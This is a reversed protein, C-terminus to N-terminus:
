TISEGQAPRREARSEIWQYLTPLLVLTLFTSSVIGGIVVTALPRQVEAGAGTAIAMPVFGLSAVLATMLKPRLRTLSGEWVAESLPKGGARLQNIFSILMIGNLVAIGSLAIFGVAASISFPMGRLALAFVGGTVALPVCLFILTAQRLSQFSLFIFAFILALSAPVVILLRTKATQLNEFQGGFEVYYGPPLQLESSLTSRAQRVFSDVDRGRLNILIAARRRGSERQVISVREVFDVNALTEIPLVGGDDTAVPLRKLAPLSERENEKLRVVITFRRNGENITGVEAGALATAVVRNLDDLHVNFKALADRKPSIELMPARGIADLEVDAAGPIEEVIQVADKAIRELENFDDGFIKIAIDARFGEMIENFRMEIPQTFLYSQAPVLVSLEQNILDALEDKSIIRGNIKRWKEIPNFFVYTDSVNAGMPDTAIESTGIRSFAYSIEPFRNLLEHEAKLQLDLSADLSISTTRIMQIAFSGEDLQPIFEAGLRTYIFVAAAVLSLSIVIVALRFTLAFRLIPRYVAKFGTVLWNDDEKMRGKLFWACLLPMLTLALILSGVLAFIVTAAMPRFMKGEVGTLVLIPVYVLTIILVGFFMPNVVQQSAEAVAERREVFTLQRGLRKQMEAIHRVINEVMVVSGDIILGFDIAGLSMLNGSIRSEFMGTLAFLMSLPIALAVIIAARWNGLMAFLVAVVLIAGEFLNKEVTRITRNVLGTRDYVARVEIGPPLKGQIERLREGVRQAVIRSNEGMLMIASGLVAEQGNYTAAGTRTGAGIEVSAIDKVRILVSAARFKLPINAIQDISQVRGTTRIVVQEGGVAIVGGGENRVNESILDALEIFSLGAEALARPNPHIIFQREYGGTSNLEAVGPVNRLLPEITFDNIEKLVMLQESRSAPKNSANATFDVTYYFIDGLGTAIPALRPNLGEPLEVQQLRETVLQRARYIDTGDEFVLNVQSLGFKSLSRLEIMGQIGALENELSFTVLQEIEEPALGPVATNIQVQINTIDPVADIPLRIASWLGLAIGIVTLM